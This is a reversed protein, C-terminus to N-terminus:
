LISSKVAPLTSPFALPVKLLLPKITEAAQLSSANLLTTLSVGLVLIQRLVISKRSM